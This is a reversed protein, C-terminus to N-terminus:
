AGATSRGRGGPREWLLERRYVRFLDALQRHDGRSPLPLALRLYRLLSFMSRGSDLIQTETCVSQEYFVRGAAFTESDHRTDFFM